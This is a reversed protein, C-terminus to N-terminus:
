SVDAALNILIAALEQPMTIMADHGTPLWRFDWGLEQYYATQAAIEHESSDEICSVYLRAITQAIPNTLMVSTTLTKLPQPTLKARMWALDAGTVGFTWDPVPQIRWPDDPDIAHNLFFGWADGILDKLDKGHVPIPGDVNVLCAIQDPIQEAIAPAITGGFSHGVLIVDRLNEFEIVNVVDRIHTNLDIDEHCLHVREGLGTLTVTYVDHGAQRLQPAVYRWCWGGHWMGHVLVFTAM